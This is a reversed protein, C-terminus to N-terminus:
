AAKPPSLAVPRTERYNWPMWQEPNQRVERENQQLSVFYDYASVKNEQCTAIVSMIDGALGSSYLTKTFYANKRLLIFRKLQREVINNDLPAGAVRIFHTLGEWHNLTYKIAKGLHSNPEVQKDDLLEDLYEKLSQLLPASYYKHYDLRQIATMEQQQTHRDNTYIGRIYKLIVLCETPCDDLLDAFKKRAHALCRCWTIPIDKLDQDQPSNVSHADSMTILPDQSQRQRLLAVINEGSHNKGVLYLVIPHPQVSYIGTAFTGNRKKLSATLTTQKMLALIRAHTDDFHLLYGQAAQKKLLTIVLELAPYLLTKIYHYQSSASLKISQQQQLAEQRYFPMGAGYKQLALQSTLAPDCKRLGAPRKASFIKLCKACRLRQTLHRVASVLPNGLLQLFVGPKFSHIRGGCHDPCADGAKLTQHTYHIEEAQTFDEHSNRGHGKNKKKQKPEDQPNKSNASDAPRDDAVSDPDSDNENDSAALLEDLQNDRQRGNARPRPTLGFYRCLKNWGIKAEKIAWQLYTYSRIVSSLLSLDEPRLRRSSELRKILNEGEQSSLNPLPPKKM